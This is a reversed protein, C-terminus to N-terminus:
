FQLLVEREVTGFGGVTSCSRNYGRVSITSCRSGPECYTDSGGPYGPVYSTINTTTVGNGLASTSAVLATVQTCRPDSGGWNFSFDYQFVEGHWDAGRILDADPLTVPPNVTGAVGFCVPSIAQGTEMATASARRWYRACEMGANAAHFAEESERANTSLRVQKISLDLIAVGVSLVVGVVILTMLLAFGAEADTKRYKIGM